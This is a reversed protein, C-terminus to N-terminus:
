KYYLVPAVRGLHLRHFLTYSVIYQNDIFVRNPSGNKKQDLRDLHMQTGNTLPTSVYNTAGRVGDLGPGDCHYQIYKKFFFLFDM